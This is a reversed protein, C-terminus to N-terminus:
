WYHPNYDVMVEHGLDSEWLPIERGCQISACISPASLFGLYHTTDNRCLLGAAPPLHFARPGEGFGPADYSASIMLRM